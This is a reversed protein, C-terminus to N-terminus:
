WNEYREGTNLDTIKQMEDDTLEFDFIDINEAIHDPNSSGPIAIYGAQLHWRLIIQAGTKEHAAAIEAITENNMSDSTHGRGGFPYYSEVITGYQEVYSQLETNQHFIHNENQIVAPLVSAGEIIREFDEPTYYNSIGLSRVVGKDIANEIARYLEKEDIGQQHILFLDIYGLDLRENAKEIADEYDDYGWPVLKTTIFVEERTVIGEEVARRVGRGVGEENGYMNATDILRYGDKLACYVSNEVTEDDQMWTGLGIAPMEYGSNLLVNEQKTQTDSKSCGALSFVFLLGLILTRCNKKNM